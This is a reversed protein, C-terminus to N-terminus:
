APRSVSGSTALTVNRPASGTSTSRKRGPSGPTPPYHMIDRQATRPMRHDVRGRHDGIGLTARAGFNNQAQTIRSRGGAQGAAQGDHRRGRRDLAHHQCGSASISRPVGSHARGDPRAGNVATSNPRLSMASRGSSGGRSGTRKRDAVGTVAVSAAQTRSFPASAIRSAHCLSPTSTSSGLRGAACGLQDITVATDLTRLALRQAPLQPVAAGLRDGYLVHGDPLGLAMEPDPM